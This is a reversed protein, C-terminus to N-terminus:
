GGVVPPKALRSILAELDEGNVKVQGTLEVSSGCRVSAGEGSLMVEGPALNDGQEMGDVGLIYPSELDQGAKLVLVEQGVRPRWTLGGPSCLAVQRREGALYVAAQPGQVTVPGSEAVAERAVPENRGKSLWM